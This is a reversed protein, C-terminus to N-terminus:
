KSHGHATGVTGVGAIAVRVVATSVLHAGLRQWSDELAEECVEGLRPFLLPGLGPLAGGRVCARHLSVDGLEARALLLLGGGM